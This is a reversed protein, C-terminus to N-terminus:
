EKGSVGEGVGEVAEVREGVAEVREGEEGEKRSRISSALPPIQYGFWRTQPPCARYSESYLHSTVIEVVDPHWM